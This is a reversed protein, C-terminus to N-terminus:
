SAVVASPPNAKLASRFETGTVFRARVLEGRRWTRACVRRVSGCPTFAVAFIEPVVLAGVDLCLGNGSVTLILCEIWPADPDAILFGSWNLEIEDAANRSSLDM